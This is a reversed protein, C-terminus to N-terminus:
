NKSRLESVLLNLSRITEAQEDVQRLLDTKEAKLREIEGYADRLDDGQGYM